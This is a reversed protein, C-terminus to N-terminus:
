SMTPRLIFIVQDTSCSLLYDGTAHLSIGTVAADHARIIQGCSATQIGWVRITHDPSATVVLEQLPPM